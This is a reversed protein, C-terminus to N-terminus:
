SLRCLTSLLEARFVLSAALIKADSLRLCKCDSDGTVDLVVSSLFNNKAREHTALQQPETMYM